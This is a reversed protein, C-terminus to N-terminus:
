AQAMGVSTRRASTSVHKPRAWASSHLRRRHEWWSPWWCRYPLWRPLCKTLDVICLDARRPATKLVIKLKLTQLCGGVPFSLM